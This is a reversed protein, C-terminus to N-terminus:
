NEDKRMEKVERMQFFFVVFLTHTPPDLWETVGGETCEAIHFLTHKLALTPRFECYSFLFHFEFSISTFSGYGMM